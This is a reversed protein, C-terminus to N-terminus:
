TFVSSYIQIGLSTGTSKVHLLNKGQFIKFEERRECRWYVTVLLHVVINRREVFYGIGMFIVLFIFWPFFTTSLRFFSFRQDLWFMCLSFLLLFDTHFFFCSFIWDPLHKKYREWLWCTSKGEKKKM